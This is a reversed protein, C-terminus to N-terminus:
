GAALGLGRTEREGEQKELRGGRAQTLQQLYLTATERSKCAGTM